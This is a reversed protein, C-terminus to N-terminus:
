DYLCGRSYNFYSVSSIRLLTPNSLYRIYFHTTWGTNSNNCCYWCFNPNKIGKLKQPDDAGRFLMVAGSECRIELPSRTFTFLESLGLTEVEEKIDAFCSDKLTNFTKRICVGKFWPESVMKLIAKRAATVSKSSGRGGWLVTYRGEFLFPEVFNPCVYQDWPPFEVTTM